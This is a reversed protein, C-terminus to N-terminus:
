EAEGLLIIGSGFADFVPGAPANWNELPGLLLIGDGAERM